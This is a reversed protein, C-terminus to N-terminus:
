SHPQVEAHLHQFCSSAGGQLGDRTHQQRSRGQRQQTVPSSGPLQYEWDSGMRCVALQATLVTGLVVPTLVSSNDGVLSRGAAAEMEEHGKPHPYAMSFCSFGWAKPLAQKTSPIRATARGEWPRCLCHRVGAKSGPLKRPMRTAMGLLPLPGSAWTPLGRSGAPLHLPALAICGHMWARTLLGPDLLSPVGEARNCRESSIPFQTKQQNHPSTESSRRQHPLGEVPSSCACPAGHSSGPREGPRQNPVM